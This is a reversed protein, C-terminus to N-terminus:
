TATGIMGVVRDIKRHLDSVSGDNCIVFDPRLRDVRESDHVGWPIGLTRYLWKGFANRYVVPGVNPRTIMITVGGMDRIAAEENSFRVSDNMPAAVGSAAFKWVNVWLDPHISERGWRTGLSVQAHRSTVGLCPIVAEKLDGELYQWCEDPLMGFEILLRDLMSRLPAAIHLRTYGHRQQLYEAATTKGSKAFGSLGIPPQKTM